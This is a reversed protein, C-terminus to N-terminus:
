FPVDSFDANKIDILPQNDADQDYTIPDPTGEEKTDIFRSYQGEFNLVVTGLPGSRQKGIILEATGKADSDPYYVEDRYLFLILDSDQELSGSERLDSPIPRKNPRKELDRNLQSLAIVPLDLEGALKKLKRSISSVEATRENGAFGTDSLLQLYDIVILGLTEGKSELERKLKLAEARIKAPTADPMDNVTIKTDKIRDFHTELNESERQTITGNKLNTMNITALSAVSRQMLEEGKMELSFILAHTNGRSTAREAVNIAFCSKGMAPRAAVLILQHPFIGSTLADLDRFGTTLGAVNSDSEIREQLMDLYKPLISEYSRTHKEGGEFTLAQSIISQAKEITGELTDQDDSDLLSNIKNAAHKITRKGYLERVIKAHQLLESAFPYTHVLEDILLEADKDKLMHQLSMRDIKMDNSVMYQMTEYIKKHINDYFHKPQLDAAVQDFWHSSELLGGLISQEIKLNYFM